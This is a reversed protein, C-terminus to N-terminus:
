GLTIKGACLLNKGGGKGPQSYDILLHLFSQSLIVVPSYRRPPLGNSIPPCIGIAFASPTPPIKKLDGSGSLSQWHYACQSPRENSDSDPENTKNKGRLM